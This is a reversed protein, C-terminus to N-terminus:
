YRQIETKAENSTQELSKDGSDMHIDWAELSCGKGGNQLSSPGPTNEVQDDQWSEKPTQSNHHWIVVENEVVWM